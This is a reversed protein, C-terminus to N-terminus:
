LNLISIYEKKVKTLLNRCFVVKSFLVSTEQLICSVDM